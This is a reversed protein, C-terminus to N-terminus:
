IKEKVVLHLIGHLILSCYMFKKRHSKLASLFFPEGQTYGALFSYNDMSFPKKDVIQPYATVSDESLARKYESDAYLFLASGRHNEV